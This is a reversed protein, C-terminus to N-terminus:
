SRELKLIGLWETYIQGWVKSDPNWASYHSVHADEDFNRFVKEADGSEIESEPSDSMKIHIFGLNAISNFAFHATRQHPKYRLWTKRSQKDGCIGRPCAFGSVLVRTGIAVAHKGCHLFYFMAAAPLLLQRTTITNIVILLRVKVFFFLIWRVSWFVPTSLKEEPM